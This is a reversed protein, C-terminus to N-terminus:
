MFDLSNQSNILNIIKSKMDKLKNKFDLVAVNSNNYFEVVYTNVDDHNFIFECINRNKLKITSVINLKIELFCALYYDTTKYM